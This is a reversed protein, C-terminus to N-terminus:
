LREGTDHRNQFLFREAPMRKARRLWSAWGFENQPAYRIRRLWYGPVQPYLHHLEHADFHLLVGLSFWHPFRLSRTFVEQAHAPFPEVKEGGSLRLPIHTHQSLLIPDMFVLSLLVALGFLRLVTAPGLWAFLAAYVGLLLLANLVFARRRHPEAFLRYLRPLHWFNRVRYLLSFLPIWLRWCVNALHREFTGLPRPVLAATTPDVDQWGTWKHHRGHVAKWSAFPIGSFFGAVHGAPENLRRTRFLTGHGAEHLLVFWQVLAVALLGQGALWGIGGSQASLALGAVTILSFGAFAIAGATDSARLHRVEGPHPADTRRQM